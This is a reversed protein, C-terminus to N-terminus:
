AALKRTDVGYLQCLSDILDDDAASHGSEMDTLEKDTLGAFDAAEKISYGALVRLKGLLTCVHVSYKLDPTQLENM